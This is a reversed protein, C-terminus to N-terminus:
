THEESRIPGLPLSMFNAAAWVGIAKPREDKDFLVTISAIAMVIVGAGAVGLLVRAATFEAVTTSYASAVSGLGFLALSALLVKKRGYRDGLLGAPLMAAALVLFYASSFWQLDSESAHLAGSLTPLAVTLITGDLGVTLVGLSVAALASWRQVRSGTM